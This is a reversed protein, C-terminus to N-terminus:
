AVIDSGIIPASQIGTTPEIVTALVFIKKGTILSINEFRAKWQTILATAGGSAQLTFTGLDRLLSSVYYVGPNVNITAFAHLLATGSAVAHTYSVALTGPSGHIATVGLSLLGAQAGGIPPVTFRTGGSITVNIQTKVYWQMGSLYSVQGFVNVAPNVLAFANWQARETQTLLNSWDIAISPLLSRSASAFNSTPIVPSTKARVSAGFRSRSYTNGSISGRMDTIGNGFLVLAM